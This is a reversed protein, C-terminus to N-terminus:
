KKVLKAFEFGINAFVLAIVVGGFFVFLKLHWIMKTFFIPLSVSALVLNSLNLWWESRKKLEFTHRKNKGM